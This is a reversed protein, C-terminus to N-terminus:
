SHIKADVPLDIIRRKEINIRRELLIAWWGLAMTIVLCLLCSIVAPYTVVPSGDSLWNTLIDMGFGASIIALTTVITQDRRLRDLQELVYLPVLQIKMAEPTPIYVETRFTKKRKM